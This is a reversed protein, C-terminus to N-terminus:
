KVIHNQSIQKRVSTRSVTTPSYYIIIMVEELHGKISDALNQTIQNKYFAPVIYNWKRSFIETQTRWSIRFNYNSAMYTPYLPFADSRNCRQWAITTWIVPHIETVCWLSLVVQKCTVKRANKAAIWRTAYPPRPPKYIIGRVSSM